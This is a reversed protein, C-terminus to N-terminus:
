PMSVLTCHREVNGHHMKISLSRAERMYSSIARCLLDLCTRLPLIVPAVRRMAGKSGHLRPMTFAASHSMRNWDVQCQSGGIIERM